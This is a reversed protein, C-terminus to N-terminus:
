EDKVSGKRNYYRGLIEYLSYTLVLVTLLGFVIQWILSNINLVLVTTFSLIFSNIYAISNLLNKYKVKKMDLNYRDIIIRVENSKKLAEYDKRKRNIFVKYVILIVLFIGIFDILCQLYINM